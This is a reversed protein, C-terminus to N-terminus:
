MQRALKDVALSAERLAEALTPHAHFSRGMDEASGYFEMVVVAEAILDGARPGVIHVGLVRDTKADALVKVQGDTTGLAKARGNAAFPFVGSKYAIGKEKLQEESQGVGAYEPWTYIVSPVTDYNVHGAKGAIIESCAVGEDEAKHALMPGAIVDGIAYVGAVNTKFHADVKIRGREDKEVGAKELGLGDTFPKRGVSVLVIDAEITTPKGEAEYTVAVGNKTPEVKTVKASLQFEM